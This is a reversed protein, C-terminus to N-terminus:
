AARELVIRASSVDGQGLLTNARAVLKVVDAADERNLSSHGRVEGVTLQDQAVPKTTRPDVQKDPMAQGATVVGCASRADNTKRESALERALRATKDREQQLSRLFGASSEEAVQKM